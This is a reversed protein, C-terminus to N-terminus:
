KADLHKALFREVRRHFDIVNETKRFGHGEGPYM